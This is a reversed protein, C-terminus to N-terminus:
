YLCMKQLILLSICPLLKYNKMQFDAKKGGLYSALKQIAKEKINDNVKMLCIQQELPIKNNDINSLKNTYEITTYM